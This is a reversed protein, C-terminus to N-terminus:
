DGETKGQFSLLRNWNKYDLIIGVAELIQDAHKIAVSKMAAKGGVTLASVMGAMLASILVTGLVSDGIIVVLTAGLAGSIIGCIDGVVDCCFNAVVNSKKLLKLAVIAGPAKRAARANVPAYAAGLVAVGIADFIVGVAIVFLLVLFVLYIAKMNQVAANTALSILTGCFFTGTFVIFVHKLPGKSTPKRNRDLKIKL